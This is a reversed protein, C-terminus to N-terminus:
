EALLRNLEAEIQHRREDEAAAADRAQAGIEAAMNIRGSWNNIRTKLADISTNPILATMPDDGVIVGTKLRIAKAEFEDVPRSFYVKVPYRRKDLDNLEQHKQTSMQVLEVKIIRVGQETLQAGCGTEFRASNPSNAM